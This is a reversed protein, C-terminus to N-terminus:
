FRLRFFTITTFAMCSVAITARQNPTIQNGITNLLAFTGLIMSAILADDKAQEITYQYEIINDPLIMYTNWYSNYKISDINPTNINYNITNPNQAQTQIAFMLMITILFLKIKKM